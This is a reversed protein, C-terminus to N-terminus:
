VNKKFLPHIDYIDETEYIEYNKFINKMYNIDTKDYGYINWNYKKNRNSLDDNPDNNYIEIVYMRNDRLRLKEFKIKLYTDDCANDLKNVLDNLSIKIIGIVSMNLYYCKIGSMVKIM